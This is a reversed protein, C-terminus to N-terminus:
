TVNVGNELDNLCIKKWVPNQGCMKKPKSFITGWSSGAERKCINHLYVVYSQLIFSKDPWPPFMSKHIIWQKVKKGYLLMLSWFQGPRSIPWSWSLTMMQIFKTTSSCGIGCVLKWPWRGKPELSSSKKLNKAYIPTAAMKTMHGPGNSYFKREGM